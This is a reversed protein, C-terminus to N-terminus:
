LGFKCVCGPVREQRQQRLPSVCCRAACAPPLLPLEALLELGCRHQQHSPPWTKWPVEPCFSSKGHLLSAPLVRCILASLLREASFPHWCRGQCAWALFARPKRQIQGALAGVSPGAKKQSLWLEELPFDGARFICMPFVTSLRYVVEASLLGVEQAGATM